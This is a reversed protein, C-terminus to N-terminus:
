YVVANLSFVPLLVAIVLGGLVLGLTLIIAPELLRTALNLTEEVDQEYWDAVEGVVEDLRGSEEGVTVVHRFFSPFVRSHELSSSLSGGQGLVAAARELESRVTENSVVPVTIRIAALLQMGSRLLLELSRSIRAVEVKLVLTGLVPLRLVLRDVAARGSKTAVMRAALSGFVVVVTLVWFWSKECVRGADVLLRTALPLDQGLEVFFRSFRPIVFSLMFSVTVVGMIALFAPYALASRVKNVLEEQRARHEAIRALAEDLRGVSEGGRIMAVDFGPFIHPFRSLVTSLNEGERVGRQVSELVGRLYPNRFQESVVALARLIAVGSKVLKSLQRYFAALEATRVKRAPLVRLSARPAQASVHEEEVDVPLLGMENIKDVAEDQTEASLHGEVLERPGKKAKYRFRKM